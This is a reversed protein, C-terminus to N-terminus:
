ETEWHCAACYVALDFGHECRGRLAARGAPDSVATKETTKIFAKYFVVACADLTGLVNYERESHLMASGINEALVGDKSASLHFWGNKEITLNLDYGQSAMKKIVATFNV